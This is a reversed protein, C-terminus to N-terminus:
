QRKQDKNKNSHSNFEKVGSHSNITSKELAMSHKEKQSFRSGVM